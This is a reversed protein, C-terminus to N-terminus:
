FPTNGQSINDQAYQTLMRRETNNNCTFAHQDKFNDTKCKKPMTRHWQTELWKKHMLHICHSHNRSIVAESGSESSSSCSICCDHLFSGSLNVNMTRSWLRGEKGISPSVSSLLWFRSISSFADLVSWLSLHRPQIHPSTFKNKALFSPSPLQVDTCMHFGADSREVGYNWNPM